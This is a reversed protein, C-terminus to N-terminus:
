IESIEGLSASAIDAWLLRGDMSFSAIRIIPKNKSEGAIIQILKTYPLIDNFVIFEDVKRTKMILLIDEPKGLRNCSEVLEEKEPQMCGITKINKKM